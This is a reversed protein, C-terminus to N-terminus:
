ETLRTVVQVESHLTRHVPCRDAIELLRRRQDADLDGEITITRDFRDLKGEETECEACDQAHIKEHTLRVAVRGLPWKKHNAYMRLTMSTCAGLASMLLDYPNPGTDHGGAREPEDARLAHGSASIAQAYPGDGSEAVLVVGPESRLSPGEELTGAEGAVYRSAWAALVTAVYASDARRSLLHDARDLSVFSKPHKAAVFIRTANDIGVVEDLPSHMVLLAKRLKGIAEQMPHAALDELFQRTITFTRGGLSVQAEGRAEIEARQSEVQRAVHEPDCPAGITAVAAADPVRAAARLVAAGGLSHGILIKPAQFHAKLHEAAAVLDDVNSSFNTNAFDGESGGLGTFDFRLVAIGQEALATSIRSAALVDKSCTFCHAFLAYAKPQGQPRDLRAALLDGRGNPFELKENTTAMISQRRM